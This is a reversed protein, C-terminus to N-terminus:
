LETALFECDMLDNIKDLQQQVVLWQDQHGHRQGELASELKLKLKALQKLDRRNGREVHRLHKILQDTTM